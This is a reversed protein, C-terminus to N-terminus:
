IKVLSSQPLWGVSGNAIKIECWGNVNDLLLVKTGEHLVFLDTSNDDPSSKATITATFVIAEDVSTLYQHANWSFLLFFLALVGLSLGVWFGAKRIFLVRTVLYLVFGSIALFITIIATRAWSDVPFFFILSKYWRKYFLDPIPDIKDSIKTNAVNLNFDVNENGPDLKKAREYWLVANPYDQMKFYCNGLNYFLDSSEFGGDAVSKYAEAAESYQGSSYAKAGKSIAEHPNIARVYMTGTLIVCLIVFMRINLSGRNIDFFTKMM